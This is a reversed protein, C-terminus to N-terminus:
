GGNTSPASWAIEEPLWQRNENNVFKQLQTMDISYRRCFGIIEWLDDYTPARNLDILLDRSIGHYGSVFSMRDLWEFFAREDSPHYYLVDTAVLQLNPEAM